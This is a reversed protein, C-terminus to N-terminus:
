KHNSGPGGRPGNKHGRGKQCVECYGFIELRHRLAVFRHERCAAEQIEELHKSGFEIIRGCSVCLMHEHHGHGYVHEYHAGHEGHFVERIIGAERLLGLTRYVTAKSVRVGRKHLLEYLSNADFHEHTTLVVNLIERREATYKQGRLDLIRQLIQDPSEREGLAVQLRPDSTASNAATARAPQSAPDSPTMILLFRKGM